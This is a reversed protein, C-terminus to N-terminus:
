TAHWRGGSGKGGLQSLDARRAGDVVEGQLHPFRQALQSAVSGAAARVDYTGQALALCPGLLLSATWLLCQVWRTM